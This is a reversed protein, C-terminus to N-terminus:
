GLSHARPAILKLCLQDRPYVQRDSQIRCSGTVLVVGHVRRCWVRRGGSLTNLGRNALISYEFTAYKIMM